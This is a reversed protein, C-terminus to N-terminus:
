SFSHLHNFSIVKEFVQFFPILSQETKFAESASQADELTQWEVIDMFITKETHDQKVIRSVFGQRTQLFSDALKSIEAFNAMSEAKIQYFVVETTTM